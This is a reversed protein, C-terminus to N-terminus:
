AIHDLHVRHMRLGDGLERLGWSTRCSSSSCCGPTSDKSLISINQNNIIINMVGTGYLAMLYDHDLWAFTYPRDVKGEMGLFM